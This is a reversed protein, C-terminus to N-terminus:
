RARQRTRDAMGTDRHDAGYSTPYVIANSRDANLQGYTKYALRTSKLTIGCDLRVDGAEFISWDPNSM